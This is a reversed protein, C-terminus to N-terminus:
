STHAAKFDGDHTPAERFARMAQVGTDCETHDVYADPRINNVDRVVLM